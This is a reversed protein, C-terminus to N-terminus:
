RLGINCSGDKRETRNLQTCKGTNNCVQKGAQRQRPRQSERFSKQELRDIQSRRLYRYVVYLRWLYWVSSKNLLYKLQLNKGPFHIMNPFHLILYKKFQRSVFGTNTVHSDYAMTACLLSFGQYSIGIVNKIITFMLADIVRIVWANTLNIFRTIDRVGVCINYHTIFQLIILLILM